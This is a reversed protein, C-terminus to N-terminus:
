YGRSVLAHKGLEQHAYFALENDFDKSIWVILVDFGEAMSKMRKCLEEKSEDISRSVGEDDADWLTQVDIFKAKKNKWLEPFNPHAKLGEVNACIFLPRLKDFCRTWIHPKLQIIDSPGQLVGGWFKIKEDHVGREEYFKHYREMAPGYIEGIFYGDCLQCKESEDTPNKICDENKCLKIKQKTEKINRYDPSIIKSPGEQDEWYCNNCRHGNETTGDRFHDLLINCSGCYGDEESSDFASM